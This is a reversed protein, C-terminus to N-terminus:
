QYRPSQGFPREPIVDLACLSPRLDRSLREFVYVGRFGYLTRQTEQADTNQEASGSVGVGVLVYAAEGLRVKSQM